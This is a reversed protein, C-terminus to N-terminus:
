RATASRGIGFDYPPILPDRRMAQQEFSFAERALDRDGGDHLQIAHRTRDHERRAFTPTREQPLEAVILLRGLLPPPPDLGKRAKARVRAELGLLELIQCVM